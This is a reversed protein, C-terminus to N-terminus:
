HMINLFEKFSNKDSKQLASIIDNMGMDFCKKDLKGILLMYRLYILYTAIVDTECYERIENGKGEDFLTTVQSGDVGLKCPINLLSCVESMKLKASAGDDSLALMLDIHAPSYRNNYNTWKDGYKFLWDCPINYKMARYKLVPIDFTRGNFTILKPKKTNFYQWFKKILEEESSLFASMSDIKILHYSEYGNPLYEIKAELYSICVVKHFVQRLFPNNYNETHYETMKNRLEQINQQSQPEIDCINCAQDTDPITEIDLVCLTDFLESRINM